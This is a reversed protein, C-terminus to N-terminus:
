RYELAIALRTGAGGYSFKAEEFSAPSFTHARAGNSFGFGETPAGFVGKDLKGNANEDHFTAIAYTGPPVSSFTCTSSRESIKGFVAQAAKGREDPFGPAAAFLICAYQGGSSRLGVTEVVITGAPEDGALAASSVGVVWVGLSLGLAKKM